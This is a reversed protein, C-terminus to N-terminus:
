ITSTGVLYRIFCISCLGSVKQLIIFHAISSLSNSILYLGLVAIFPCIKAYKMMSNVGACDVSAVWSAGSRGMQFNDTSPAALAWPLPALNIKVERSPISVFYARLNTKWAELLSASYSATM